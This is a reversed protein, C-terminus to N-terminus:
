GDESFDVKQESDGGVIVTVMRDIDVQHKFAQLIAQTSVAKIKDNFTDLYDLPLRYFGIVALYAVIDSNSDIRLPFGGTINKISAELEAGSPGNEVFRAITEKVLDTAKHAQDVRTQLVVEFPGRVKQPLFYSYISYSLGRKVRVEKVLRSSFGSGGLIHNGVYLPFYDPDDRRIGPQGLYVHAQKSPFPIQILQQSQLAKVAQLEPAPEGAPLDKGIM